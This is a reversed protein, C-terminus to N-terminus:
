DSFSVRGKRHEGRVHGSTGHAVHRASRTRHSRHPVRAGVLEEPEPNEVPEQEDQATKGSRRALYIMFGVVGGLVGLTFALLTLIALNMGRTAASNPDGFCVSCASAISPLGVLAVGVCSQLLNRTLRSRNM